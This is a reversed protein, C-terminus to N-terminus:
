SPHTIFESKGAGLMYTDGLTALIAEAVRAARAADLRGGLAGLVQAHLTYHFKDKEETTSRAALVFDVAGNVYAAADAPPLRRCVAVLAKSLSPWVIPQLEPGRRLPALAEAAPNAAAEDLRPSVAVIAQALQEYALVQGAPEQLLALFVDTAQAAHAAAQSPPLHESVAALAEALRPYDDREVLPDR